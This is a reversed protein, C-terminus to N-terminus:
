QDDYIGLRYLVLAVVISRFVAAFIVLTGPFLIGSILFLNRLAAQRSLTM